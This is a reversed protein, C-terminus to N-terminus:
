EEIILKQITQKGQKNTLKLLYIGAPLDNIKIYQSYYTNIKKGILDDITAEIVQSGLTIHDTAPNPFFSEKAMDKTDGLGLTCNQAWRTQSDKIFGNQIATNSDEVCIQMLNPNSSANLIKLHTTNFISLTTLINKNCYLEELNDLNNIELFSVQNNFLLAQKLKVNNTFNFQTIQNNFAWFNILATNNTTNVSTLQNSTCLLNELAIAETLNISTLANSSIDLFKLKSVNSLNIQALNNTKCYVTDLLPNHSLDLQSLFNRSCDLYHLKTNKSLDLSTLSLGSCDFHELNTFATICSFETINYNRIVLKTHSAAEQVTLIGDGNVDIGYETFEGMLTPTVEIPQAIGTFTFFLVLVLLSTSFKMM